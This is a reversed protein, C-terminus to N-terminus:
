SDWSLLCLVFCLLSLQTRVGGLKSFSENNRHSRFGEWQRKGSLQLQCPFSSLQRPQGLPCSSVKWGSQAPHRLPQHPSFSWLPAGSAFGLPCCSARLAPAQASSCPGLETVNFPLVDHNPHPPLQVGGLCSGCPFVAKKRGHRLCAFGGSMIVGPDSEQHSVAGPIGAQHWALLLFM